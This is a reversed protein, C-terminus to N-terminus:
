FIKPGITAEARALVNRRGPQDVDAADGSSQHISDIPTSRCLHALRFDSRAPAFSDIAGGGSAMVPDPAFGGASSSDM